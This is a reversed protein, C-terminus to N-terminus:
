DSNQNPLKDPPLIQPMIISTMEESCAFIQSSVPYMALETKPM